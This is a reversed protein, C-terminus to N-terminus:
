ADSETEEAIPERAARSQRVEDGIGILVDVVASRFSQSHRAYDGLHILVMEAEERADTVDADSFATELAERLTEAVSAERVEIAAPPEDAPPPPAAPPTVVQQPQNEAKEARRFAM